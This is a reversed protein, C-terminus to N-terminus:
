NLTEKTTVLTRNLFDDGSRIGQTISWVRGELLKWDLVLIIEKEIPISINASYFPDFKM